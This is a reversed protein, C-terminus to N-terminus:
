FILDFECGKEIILHNEIQVSTMNLRKLFKNEAFYLLHSTKLFSFYVDEEFRSGELAFPFNLIANSLNLPERFWAGRICIGNRTILSRFYEDFVVTELFEPRLIRNESWVESIKPDLNSGYNEAKNFDAIEGRCICDWVWKKQPTWSNTPETQYSEIPFTPLNNTIAESASLTSSVFSFLTILSFICPKYLNRFFCLFM